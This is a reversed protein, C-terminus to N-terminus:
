NILSILVKFQEIEFVAAQVAFILEIEVGQPLFFTWICSGASKEFELNWAWIHCNQFDAWIESVVARLAFTLEIEVGKPYFSPEYAVEPVKKWIGPKM